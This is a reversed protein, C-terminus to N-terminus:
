HFYNEPAHHSAFPLAPVLRLQNPQPNPQTLEADLGPHRPVVQGSFILTWRRAMARQSAPWRSGPQNLMIARASASPLSQVANM